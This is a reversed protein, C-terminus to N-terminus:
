TRSGDRNELAAHAVVLLVTCLLMQMPIQGFEIESVIVADAWTKVIPFTLV